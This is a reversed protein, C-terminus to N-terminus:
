FRPTGTGTVDLESSSAGLSALSLSASSSSLQFASGGSSLKSVSANYTASRALLGGAGKGGSRSRATVYEDRLVRRMIKNSATRPLLTSMVVDSIHFLPNLKSKISNQLQTKLTAKFEIGDIGDTESSSGDVGPKLVVYVVLLSPGGAAPNVAIAATEHVGDVLNCVREIEVSSIKIGGLNM